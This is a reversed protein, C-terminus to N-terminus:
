DDKKNFLSKGFNIVKRAARHSLKNRKREKKAIKDEEKKAKEMEKQFDYINEKAKTIEKEIKIQKLQKRTILKLPVNETWEIGCKGCFCNNTVSNKFMVYEGRRLFWKIMWFESLNNQIYMGTKHSGCRRCPPVNHYLFLFFM